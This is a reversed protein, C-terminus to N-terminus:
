SGVATLHARRLPAVNPTAVSSISGSPGPLLVRTRRASPYRRGRASVTVTRSQIAGFGHGIGSWSTESLTLEAEAGPWDGLVLLVGGRERLRASLRAVDGDRPSVPPRVAIVPIVEALSAVVSLWREKPDPVLVLRELTVGFGEAAEASLSSFGVAACWSGSASPEALLSLVLSVSTDITYASGPKLGGGPFLTALASTVPIVATDARRREARAINERLSQLDAPEASVRSRLPVAM